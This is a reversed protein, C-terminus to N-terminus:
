LFKRPIARLVNAQIIRSPMLNLQKAIRTTTPLTRRTVGRPNFETSTEVVRITPIKLRFGRCVATKLGGSRRPSDLDGRIDQRSDEGDNEEQKNHVHTQAAYSVDLAGLGESGDLRGGSPLILSKLAEANPIFCDRLGPPTLVTNM